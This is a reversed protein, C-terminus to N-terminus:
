TRRAERSALRDGLVRALADLQYPKLLVDLGDSIAERAAEIYGTTLVVPIEPRRRRIEHSLDVGSMGGPMMVDSFVIDIARGNALAGLAAKPSTVHTVDFGISDLMEMTLAAVEPDDEVLLIHGIRETTGGLLPEERAPALESADTDLPKAFRPFQMTVTTGCGEKSDISVDGGSQSVFAYVQALGLGSGKGVEKTTFFPEFVRAVVAESMGSGTDAVTLEVRDRSNRGGITIAGGNPLADRANLCLNLVALELEGPDVEVPWLDEAVALKVNVAGGLSRDLLDSMEQLHRRLDIPRQELPRRRSFALLQRTLAAGREVAQRMTDVVARRREPKDQRDILYLGSSVAMLLNNFDHAVGGTLQGLADMKQAHRLADQANRLTQEDQLRRTVDYVFQYAGIMEGARNRLTNFKMEYYRRDRGPDGFEQIETFEEGALARAWIAEVAARHEPLHALLELMSDGVRPRVGYNREFENASARNIALFRFNRDVVQVFADTSEVIDAFLKREALAAAVRTELTENLQRLSELRSRAEYQRRRARLASRTVSVLTTPHFPRELFAVNGLTQLWRDAAPNRELGGGRSTLLVFPIDSWEPQADIWAALDHLDAGRLVEETVLAFGAGATLESVLDPICKCITAQVDAEALMGCAVVADRGIPALVLGRESYRHIV